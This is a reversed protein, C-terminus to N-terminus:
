CPKKCVKDFGKLGQDNLIQLISNKIEYFNEADFKDYNCHICKYDYGDFNNPHASSLKCCNPCVPAEYLEFNNYENKSVRWRYNKIEIYRQYYFHNYLRILPHAKKYIKQNTKESKTLFLYSLLIIFALFINIILLASIEHGIEEGLKCFYIPNIKKLLCEGFLALLFISSHFIVSAKKKM